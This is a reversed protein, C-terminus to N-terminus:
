GVIYGSACGLWGNLVRQCWPMASLFAQAREGLQQVEDAHDIGDATLVQDIPTMPMVDVPSDTMVIRGGKVGDYLTATIVTGNYTTAACNQFSITPTMQAEMRGPYRIVLMMIGAM